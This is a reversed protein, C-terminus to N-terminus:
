YMQAFGVELEEWQKLFIILEMKKKMTEVNEKARLPYNQYFYSVVNKLEIHEIYLKLICKITCLSVGKQEFIPVKQVSLKRLSNLIVEKDDDSPNTIDIVRPEFYRIIFCSSNVNFSPLLSHHFFLEPHTDNFDWLNRLSAKRKFLSALRKLNPPSEQLSFSRIYGAPTVEEFDERVFSAARMRAGKGQFRGKYSSSCYNLPLMIKKDLAYQFLKLATLESEVITVSPQHLFTYNRKIYNKYNFNETSLQHLNLYKVGIDSMRSLSKKLIQFDEPIAPIEVTVTDISGVASEVCHLNGRWM